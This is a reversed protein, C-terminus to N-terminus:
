EDDLTKLLALAEQYVEKEQPTDPEGVRDLEKKIATIMQGKAGDLESHDQKEVVDVVEGVVETVALVSKIISLLNGM